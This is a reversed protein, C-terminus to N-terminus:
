PMPAYGTQRILYQGEDSLIWNILQKINGKPQGNTVAYFNATFPYSGNTVSEISPYVGNIKLLKANSNPYMKVAYYRYSYGIAPQIGHWEISIQKIMSGTGFLSDDPLPRPKWIPLNKMISELGTQSGSGDPRQFAIINGGNNWGLTKWIATKGSYINKLQQYTLGDMPNSKGVLFVFAERGIPTFVLNAGASKAAQKQKESPQAVFIIDCKGSIISNFANATNTCVVDKPSYDTENYTAQAFASYVPYLATAGDLSPLKDSLTISAGKPLKAVKTNKTFPAYDATNSSATGNNQIVALPYWNGTVAPIFLLGWIIALVTIVITSVSAIKHHKWILALLLGTIGLLLILPIAGTLNDIAKLQSFYEFKNAIHICSMVLVVTLIIRVVLRIYKKFNVLTVDM